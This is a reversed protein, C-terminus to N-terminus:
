GGAGDGYGVMDAIAADHGLVLLLMQGMGRLAASATM